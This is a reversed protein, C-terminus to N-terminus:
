SEMLLKTKLHGLSGSYHTSVIVNTHSTVRKGRYRQLVRLLRNELSLQLWPRRRKTTIFHLHTYDCEFIRPRKNVKSNFVPKQNLTM